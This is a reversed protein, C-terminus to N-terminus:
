LRQLTADPHSPCPDPDMGLLFVVDCYDCHSCTYILGSPQAVINGALQSSSRVSILSPAFYKDRWRQTQPYQDLLQWIQAIEKSSVALELQEQVKVADSPDLLKPLIPYIVAAADLIQQPTYMPTSKTQPKSELTALPQGISPTPM